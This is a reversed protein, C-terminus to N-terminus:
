STFEPGLRLEWVMFVAHTLTLTLPRHLPSSPSVDTVM